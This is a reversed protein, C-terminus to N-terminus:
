EKIATEDAELNLFIAMSAMGICDKEVVVSPINREIHSLLVFFVLSIHRHTALKHGDSLEVWMIDTDFKISIAHLELHEDSCREILIKYQENCQVASEDIATGKM